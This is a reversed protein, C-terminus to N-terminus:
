PREEGKGFFGAVGAFLVTLAAGISFALLTEIALILLGAYEIPYWLLRGKFLVTGAAVGIFMLFGAALFLRVLPGRAFPAVLMGSSILTVGAAGLLAGSQFAGGPRYSGAWVMYGATIFIVPLLIGMGVRLVPSRHIPAQLHFRKEERYDLSWVAIVAVLLVGIELLTDYGRFNLLVATLPHAVGSVNMAGDVQRALGTAEPSISLVASGLALGLAVIGAGLATRQIVRFSMRSRGSM